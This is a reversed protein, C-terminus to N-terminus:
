PLVFLKKVTFNCGVKSVVEGNKDRSTSFSGAIYCPVQSQEEDHFNIRRTAKVQGQDFSEFILIYKQLIDFSNSFFPEELKSKNQGLHGILEELANVLLDYEIEFDHNELKACFDNLNQTFEIENKLSNKINLLENAFENDITIKMDNEFTEAKIINFFLFISSLLIIKRLINNM